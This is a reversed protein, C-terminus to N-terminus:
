ALPLDGAPRPAPLERLVADDIDFHQPAARHGALRLV